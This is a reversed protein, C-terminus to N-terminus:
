VGLEEITRRTVVKRLMRSSKGMSGKALSMLMDAFELSPVFSLVSCNELELVLTLRQTLGGAEALEVTRILFYIEM